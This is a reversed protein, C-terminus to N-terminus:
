STAPSSCPWVCSAGVPLQALGVSAALGLEQSRLRAGAPLIVSGDRIDRRRPTGM